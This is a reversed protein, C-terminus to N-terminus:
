IMEDAFADLLAAFGDDRPHMDDFWTFSATKTRCNLYRAWAVGGAARAIHENLVDVVPDIVAQLHEDPIGKKRLYQGIYKGRGVLPRAYDYGYTLVQVKPFQSHVENLLTVYGDHIRSMLQLGAQTLYDSLPRKPDFEHIATGDELANQLDNGGASVILFRTTGTLEQLYEREQLMQRLTHGWRAINNTEFRRDKEMQDAIAHRRTAMPLNFWSDGEAVVSIGASARMLIRRAADRKRLEREYRYVVEDVDYDRPVDGIIADARFMLRPVASEEDFEVFEGLMDPPILQEKLLRDFQELTVRTAMKPEEDKASEFWIAGHSRSPLDM